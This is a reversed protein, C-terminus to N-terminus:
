PRHCGVLHVEPLGLCEMGRALFGQITPEQGGRVAKDAEGFFVGCIGVASQNLGGFCVSSFWAQFGFAVTELDNAGEPASSALIAIAKSSRGM